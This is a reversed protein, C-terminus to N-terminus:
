LSSFQSLPGSRESERVLMQSGAGTNPLEGVGTVGVGPERVDRAEEPVWVPTRYWGRCMCM